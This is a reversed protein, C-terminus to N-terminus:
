TGTSSAKTTTGADWGSLVNIRHGAESPTGQWATIHPPEASYRGGKYGDGLTLGTEGLPHPDDFSLGGLHPPPTCWVITASFVAATGIDRSGTAWM